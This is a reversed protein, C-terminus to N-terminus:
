GTIWIAPVLPLVDVARIISANSSRDPSRAAPEGRRVQLQDGFANGNVACGNRGIMVDLEVGIDRGIDVQDVGCGADVATQRQGLELDEGRHGIGCEGVHRHVGGNISTPSPPVQSEVLTASAFIATIVGIPM